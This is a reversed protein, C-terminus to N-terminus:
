CFNDFLAAFAADDERYTAAMLAVRALQDISWDSLDLGPRLAAARELDAAPLALDAKGLRRSALGIAVSLARENSAHSVGEIASRFWIIDREDTRRSIWEDALKLFENLM